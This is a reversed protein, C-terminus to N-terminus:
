FNKARLHPLQLAEQSSIGALSLGSVCMSPPNLSHGKPCGGGARSTSEALEAGDEDEKMEDLKKARSISDQCFACAKPNGFGTTPM